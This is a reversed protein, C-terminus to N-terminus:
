RPPEITIALTGSHLLEAFDDSTPTQEYRAIGRLHLESTCEAMILPLQGQSRAQLVMRGDFKVTTSLLVAAALFEAKVRPNDELPQLVAAQAAGALLVALVPTMMKLM